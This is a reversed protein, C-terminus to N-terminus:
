IKPMRGAQRSDFCWYFRVQALLPARALFTYDHFAEIRKSDRPGFRPFLALQPRPPLGQTIPECLEIMRWLAAYCQNLAGCLWAEMIENAGQRVRSSKWAIHLLGRRSSPKRLIASQQESAVGPTHRTTPLAM